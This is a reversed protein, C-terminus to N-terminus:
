TSYRAVKKVTWTSSSLTTQLGMEYRGRGEKKSYSCLKLTGRQAPLLYIGYVAM